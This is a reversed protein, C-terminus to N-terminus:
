AEIAAKISGNGELIIEKESNQDSIILKTKQIKNEIFTEITKIEINNM